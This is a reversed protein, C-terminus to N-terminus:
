MLTIGGATPFTENLSDCTDIAGVRTLYLTDVKLVKLAEPDVNSHVCAAIRKIQASMVRAGLPLDLSKMFQQRFEPPIEELKIANKQLQPPVFEEVVFGQVALQSATGSSILGPSGLMPVTPIDFKQPAVSQAKPQSTVVPPLPLSVKGSSITPRSLPPLGLRQRCVDCNLVDASLNNMDIPGNGLHQTSRIPASPKLLNKSPMPSPLPFGQVEKQGLTTSASAFCCSLAFGVSLDCLRIKIMKAFSLRTIPPRPSSQQM